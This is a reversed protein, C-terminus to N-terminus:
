VSRIGLEAQSLQIGPGAQSRVLQSFKSLGEEIERGGKRRKFSMSLLTAALFKRSERSEGRRHMCM